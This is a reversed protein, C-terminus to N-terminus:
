HCISSTQSSVMDIGMALVSNHMPGHANIHRKAKQTVERLVEDDCLTDPLNETINKWAPQQSRESWGPSLAAKLAGNGYFIYPRMEVLINYMSKLLSM